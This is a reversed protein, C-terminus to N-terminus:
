RLTKFIPATTPAWEGGLVYKADSYQAIREKDDPLQLRKAVELRKSMDVPKGDADHSNYEWFHINPASVARDLRWGVPSVADTLVCDLLVVESAPFRGPDIRSLFNGIVGPAGDFICNKYIYGHSTETNRIQTYYANNRVSRCHCNEFFCPGTGWMFDVDGEIYCNRVYAQGNIQLTDQYSYIDVNAIIARANATGNLIIAEAQSGGRPTTNRFTMNAIVLDNVKQAMFVGRHYAGPANNFNANNACAIVSQKRDEGLLTISHKNALYIIENYTGKRLFVTIPAVNGDPIFDLAGQVTCFDGSGDAAVTLKAKDTAPPSMKTSFRWGRANDIGPFSNGNGDKFADPDIKVYFTKGYALAGNPLYLTAENGTIIVPYYRYNAAGGISQTAAPAGHDISAALADNSADFVQIKGIGTLPAADFTIRLPSDPCVDSANLVPSFSIVDLVPAASQASFTVTANGLTNILLLFAFLANRALLSYHNRSM